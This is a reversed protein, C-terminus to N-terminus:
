RRILEGYGYAELAALTKKLLCPKYSALNTGVDLLDPKLVVTILTYPILFWRGREIMIVGIDQRPFAQWHGDYFLLGLGAACVTFVAHGRTFPAYGGYHLYGNTDLFVDVTGNNVPIRIRKRRFILM